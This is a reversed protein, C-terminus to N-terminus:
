ESRRPLMTTVVDTLTGTEGFGGAKTIVTLDPASGGVIRGVPVGEAIHGEIRLAQAGLRDLVAGAGDGGVLVLGAVGGSDVLGAVGAAMGSAVDHAPACGQSPEAEPAGPQMLVVPASDQNSRAHGWTFMATADALEDASFEWRILCDGLSRQLHDAQQLSVANLSTICVVVQGREARVLPDHRAPQISVTQWSDALHRALGASGVCIARPGLLKIAGALRALDAEDEADVIVRGSRSAAKQLSAALEGAGFRQAISAAGPILDSLVASPVPTVPDDGAPSRDLPVGHVWMAGDHIIRGMRPYAPCIIAVADPHRQSWAQRAGDIQGAVSGRLTSDIKLYLRDDAPALQEAIIRRTVEAAQSDPLARTDASVATAVPQSPQDTRELPRGSLLLYAAWGADRFQVVTDNAGTLDDAVISVGLWTQEDGTM